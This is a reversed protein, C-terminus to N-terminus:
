LNGVHVSDRPHRIRAGIVAGIIHGIEMFVLAVAISAAGDFFIFGVIAGVTIGVIGGAISGVVLGVINRKLWSFLSGM